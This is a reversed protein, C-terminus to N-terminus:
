TTCGNVSDMDLVKEDDWVSARYEYFFLSGVQRKGQDKTVKTTSTFKTTSETQTLKGRRPVEHLHLWLINTKKPRDQKRTKLCPDPMNEPNMWTTAYFLAANRKRVSYYEVTHISGMKNLNVCWKSMQIIEPKPSSHVITSHVTTYLNKYSCTNEIWYIGLLLIVPDYLLETNKLFQWVIKGHRHLMKCEWWYTLPNWSKRM